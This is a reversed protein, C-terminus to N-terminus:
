PKLRTKALTVSLKIDPCNDCIFTIIFENRTSLAVFYRMYSGCNPCTVHKIMYMNSAM